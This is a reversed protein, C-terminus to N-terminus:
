ANVAYRWLADLYGQRFEPGWANRMYWSCGFRVACQQNNSGYIYGGNTVLSVVYWKGNIPAFTGAGSMGGNLQCGFGLAYWGNGFHYSDGNWSNCFTPYCEWSWRSCYGGVQSDYMGEVPYGVAYKSATSRAAEMRIPFSGTYDHVRKGGNSVPDLKIFGYDFAMSWAANARTGDHYLQDVWARDGAALWEGKPASNGRLQPVFSFAEYPGNAATGTLCHAATLVIDPGVVTGSCPGSRQWGGNVLDWGFVRGTAAPPTDAAYGWSGAYLPENFAAQTNEPLPDGAILSGDELLTPAAAAEEESPVEDSTSV